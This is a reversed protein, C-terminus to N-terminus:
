SRYPYNKLTPLKMPAASGLLSQLSALAAATRGPRRPAKKALRNAAAEAQLENIHSVAIIYAPSHM